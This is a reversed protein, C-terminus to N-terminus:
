NGDRNREQKVGEDLVVLGKGKGYRDFLVTVDRGHFRVGDICWWDWAKPALPKVDRLWRGEMIHHNLPCSITNHPGAWPVQPLFETVVWGDPTKKLHKRYTWWRFYYAREIDRDPCAFRPISKVAWEAAEANSVANTYLEEDDASFRDFWTCVTSDPLLGGIVAQVAALGATICISLKVEM